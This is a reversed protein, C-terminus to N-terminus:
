CLCPWRQCASGWAVLVLVSSERAPRNSLRSGPLSLQLYEPSFEPNSCGTSQTTSSMSTMFSYVRIRPRGKKLVVPAWISTPASSIRKL